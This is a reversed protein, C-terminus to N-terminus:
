FPDVGRKLIDEFVFAQQIGTTEGIYHMRDIIWDRQYESSAMQGAYLLPWFLLYIGAVAPIGNSDTQTDSLSGSIVPLDGCYQPVSACIDSVLQQMIIVSHQYQVSDFLSTDLFNEMQQKIEQHLLLRCTRVNNWVGAVWADSYKHFQTGMVQKSTKASNVVHFQWDEPMNDTLSCLSRDIDKAYAIMKEPDYLTRCKIQARFYSLSIMIESLKWAPDDTDMYAATHRHLKVLGMPIRFSRMLCTVSICLLTQRFMQLGPRSQVLGVGRIDLISAVGKLHTERQYPFDKSECTLAEFTNLFLISMITANNAAEHPSSLAANIHRLAAIYYRRAKKLLVFHQFKTAYAALAVARLSTVVREETMVENKSASLYEYHGRILGINHFTHASM